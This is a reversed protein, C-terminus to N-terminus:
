RIASVSPTPTHACAPQFDSFSRPANIRASLGPMTHTFTDPLHRSGAIGPLLTPSTPSTRTLDRGSAPTAMSTACNSGTSCRMPATRTTGPIVVRFSDGVADTEAVVYSEAQNIHRYHASVATLM